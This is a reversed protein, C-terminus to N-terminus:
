CYIVYNLCSIGFNIIFFEVYIIFLESEFATLDAGPCCRSVVGMGEKLSAM